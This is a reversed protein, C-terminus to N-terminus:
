DDGGDTGYIPAVRRDAYDALLVVSGTTARSELDRHAAEAEAMAYTKTVRIRIRSLRVMDMVDNANEVLAQRSAIYTSLSPRTVYLSGKQALIGLDIPPVPGSANGFTVWLGRPKLCDLSKPFTDKGIPDYVADVGAGGTIEKVRAAFDETRYNIVHTCGNDKALTTKEDSGATGIITAGIYSAWQCAILGVGGAAAHWLIVSEKTVPYTQKLLYRVTMGQLMMAAATEYSIDATLKVLRDAPILREEAYGGLPGAYAVRDGPAIDTVGEGVALVLGAGESGPTFPMSPVPYLGTRHYVDIFNLGAAYQKIKAEGPGPEGVQIEEWKMVEPGGFAQVRIAYPM